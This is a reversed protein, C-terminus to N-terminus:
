AARGLPTAVSKGLAEVSAAAMDRVASLLPMPEGQSEKERALAYLKANEQADSTALLYFYPDPILRAVGASEDGLSLFMESFKGKVTRLSGIAKKKEPSLSLHKEM